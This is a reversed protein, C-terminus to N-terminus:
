MPPTGSIPPAGGMARAVRSVVLELWRSPHRAAWRLSAAWAPLVLQLSVAKVLSQSRVQGQTAPRTGSGAQGPEPLVAEDPFVACSSVWAVGLCLASVTRSRASLVALFRASSPAKPAVPLPKM